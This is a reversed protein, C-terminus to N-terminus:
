DERLQTQRKEEPGMAHSGVKEGVELSGKAAGNFRAPKEM